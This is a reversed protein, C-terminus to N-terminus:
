STVSVPCHDGTQAAQPKCFCEPWPNTYFSEPDVRTHPGAIWSSQVVAKVKEEFEGQELSGEEREMFIPVLAKRDPRISTRFGSYLRHGLLNNAFNSPGDYTPMFIDSLLCVMYDVAPGLLGKGETSIRNLEEATAVTTRNELRPFLKRLPEMFREGGFIDGAALYIRTSNDYGLSRLILGVEEPTLPCKGILRRDTYHLTKEAFNEKRYKLLIAQEAPTFIDVCGAFALMDMEFRLHIALFQGEARLRAVIKKSLSMVDERFRLAHFNVRCRLRQYEHNDLEEALRHSFPSLHIAGHEKMKALAVTEYWSPYANRPPRLQFPKMRRQKKRGVLPLAKVIKVDNALSSIFHRVDYIGSFGSKDHWFSNTDLEPLVLTANMIRAALVANCIAGRQQNLGGNCRVM